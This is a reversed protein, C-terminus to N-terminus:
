NRCQSTPPPLLCRPVHNRGRPLQRVQDAETLYSGAITQWYYCSKNCSLAFSSWVAIPPPSVRFIAKASSPTRLTSSPAVSHLHAQNCNGARPETPAAVSLQLLGLPIQELLQNLGRKKIYVAAFHILTRPAGVQNTMPPLLETSTSGQDLKALSYRSPSLSGEKLTAEVRFDFDVVKVRQLAILNLIGNALDHVPVQVVIQDLHLPFGESEGKLGGADWLPLAM